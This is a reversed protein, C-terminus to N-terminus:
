KRFRKVLYEIFVYIGVGVVGILIFPLAGIILAAIMFIGVGIMTLILLIGLIGIMSEGLNTNKYREEAVAKAAEGNIM